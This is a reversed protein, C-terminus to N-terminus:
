KRTRRGVRNQGSFYSDFSRYFHGIKKDRDSKNTVNTFLLTKHLCFKAHSITSRYYYSYKIILSLIHWGLHRENLAATLFDGAKFTGITCPTDITANTCTFKGGGRGLIGVVVAISKLSPM